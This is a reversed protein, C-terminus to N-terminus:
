ISESATMHRILPSITSTATKKLGEEGFSSGTPQRREVHASQYQRTFGLTATLRQQHVRTTAHKWPCSQGHVTGHMSWLKCTQTPPHMLSSKRYTLNILTTHQCPSVGLGAGPCLRTQQIASIDFRRLCPALQTKHGRSCRVVASVQLLGDHQPTCAGTHPESEAPM